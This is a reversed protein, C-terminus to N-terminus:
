KRGSRRVLTKKGKKVAPAGKVKKVEWETEYDADDAFSYNDGTDESEERFEGEEEGLEEEEEDVLDLGQKVNSPKRSPGAESSVLGKDVDKAKTKNEALRTSTRLIGPLSRTPRSSYMTAPKKPSSFVTEEDDSVEIIRRKSMRPASTSAVSSTSQDINDIQPVKELPNAQPVEKEVGSGGVMPVAMPGEMAMRMYNIRTFYGPLELKITDMEAEMTQKERKLTDREHIVNSYDLTQQTITSKLKDIEIRSADQEESRILAAQALLEEFSLTTTM